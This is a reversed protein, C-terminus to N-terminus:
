VVLKGDGEACCPGPETSVPPEAVVAPTDSDVDGHEKLIASLHAVVVGYATVIPSTHQGDDAKTRWRNIVGQLMDRESRVDALLKEFKGNM